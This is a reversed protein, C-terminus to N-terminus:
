PTYNQGSIHGYWNTGDSAFMYEDMRAATATLTPATSAPWKVGTFTGTFSGAGTFARVVFTMGDVATPMTFTCNGTMTYKFVCAAKTPASITQATSTNVNSVQPDLFNSKLDLATQQATSVPKGTDATNDINNIALDIKYQSITRNSWVGSKRQIIDDNSPTLGAVADLDTDWAQVNTGIALGLNTRASSASGLDSLNNASLLAGVLNHELVFWSSGVSAETGGANDSKAIYTDGIDVSKGSAGGIKGAVTVYYLAGTTASPYNPNGSCDTNGALHAVGTVALSVAAAVFATSAIQTTNTGATATPSTPVGSLSPSALDAKLNLATQQSTTVGSTATQSGIKVNNTGDDIYLEKTDTSYRLEGVETNASPLNANLGRRVKIKNDQAM